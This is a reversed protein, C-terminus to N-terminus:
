QSSLSLLEWNYGGVQSIKGPEEPWQRVTWKLTPSWWLTTTHYLINERYYDKKIKYIWFLGAPVHALGYAVVTYDIEDVFRSSPDNKAIRATHGVSLPWLNAILNKEAADADGLHPGLGGFWDYIGQADSRIRCNFRDEEIAIMRNPRLTNWAPVNYTFVTGTDPCGFKTTPTFAAPIPIFFSTQSNIAALIACLSALSLVLSLLAKM